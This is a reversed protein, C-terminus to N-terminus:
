FQQALITSLSHATRELGRQTPIKVGNLLKATTNDINAYYIM